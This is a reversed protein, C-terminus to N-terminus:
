VRKLVDSFEAGAATYAAWPSAGDVPVVFLAQFPALMSECFSRPSQRLTMELVSPRALWAFYLKAEKMTTEVDGAPVAWVEADRKEMMRHVKLRDPLAADSVVHLSYIETVEEPMTAFLDEGLSKIAPVDVAAHRFNLFQLLPGREALENLLRETDWRADEPVHKATCKGVGTSRITRRLEPERVEPEVAVAAPIVPVPEPEASERHLLVVFQDSGVQLADGDELKVLDLLPQGNLFVLGANGTQNQAICSGDEMWIKMCSAPLGFSQHLRLDANGASGLTVAADDPLFLIREAEDCLSLRQICYTLM